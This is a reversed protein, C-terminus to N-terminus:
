FNFLHKMKIRRSKFRTLSHSTVDSVSDWLTRRGYCVPALTLCSLFVKKKRLM